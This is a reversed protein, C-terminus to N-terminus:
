ASLKAAIRAVHAGQQRAISLEDKSPRRSGDPGAITAAGYPSGGRVSDLKTLEPTSYPVGVIM